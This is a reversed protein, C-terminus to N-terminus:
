LNIIAHFNQIITYLIKGLFFGLIAYIFLLLIHLLTTYFLPIVLFVRGIIENSSIPKLDLDVNNDGKTIYLSNGKSVLRHTIVTDPYESYSFSVIDGVSYSNQRISVVLSDKSVKPYMSDSVIYFLNLYGKYISCYILLFVIFVIIFKRM